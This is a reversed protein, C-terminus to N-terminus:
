ILNEDDEADGVCVEICRLDSGLAKISHEKGAAISVTSGAMLDVEVGELILKGMGSLVTITETHKLHKHKPMVKGAVVKIRKTVSRIGDDEDNDITKITGWRREEYKSTDEIHELCKKIYSSQHKDAVLIGDHSAAIVMNKAGMVVLPVGLVNIAHSNECTDDWTVDGISNEPMEETLTNWTGLDKWIDDYKIAAIDKWHELVEYDFSKKPLKEYDAVMQNYDTTVGYKELWKAALSLKFCFVGCNWLAGEAVLKEATAEDPKEQFGQVKLLEGEGQEPVIYGYKTSPYTPVGGLLGITQERSAIYDGLKKIRNFFEGTTYPDVPLFAVVDNEKAGKESLLYACSLMVAPFTDRRMPEVAVEAAGDLQSEILEEQASSACVITNESLGATKLQGFVRQLMSCKEDNAANDHNMLKIYQKSCLDNSLPWLRKGSGGSLLVIYM